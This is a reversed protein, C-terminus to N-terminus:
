SPHDVVPPFSGMAGGSSPRGYSAGGGSSAAVLREYFSRSLGRYGGGESIAFPQAGSDSTVMRHGHHYTHHPYTYDLSTSRNMVCRHAYRWGITEILGEWVERGYRTLLARTFEIAMSPKFSAMKVDSNVAGGGPASSSALRIPSIGGHGPFSVGSLRTSTEAVTQLTTRRSSPPSRLPPQQQQQMGSDGWGATSPARSPFQMGVDFSAPPAPPPPHHGGSTRRGYGASAAAASGGSPMVKAARSAAAAAGTGTTAVSVGTGGKFFDLASSSPAVALLLNKLVNQISWTM